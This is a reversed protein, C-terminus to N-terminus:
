KKNAKAKQKLAASRNKSPMGTNPVTVRYRGIKNKILRKAKHAKRRALVDDLKNQLAHIDKYIKAEQETLDVEGPLDKDTMGAEFMRKRSINKVGQQHPYLITGDYAIQTASLFIMLNTLEDKKSKSSFITGILPLEGLFPVKTKTNTKSQSMLGGIAIAYGSKITVVSSTKKEAIKPYSVSTGSGSTFPVTGDQTSLSPALKLTIYEAQVKPTVDLQIGIPKEEFGSIEFQGQDSNYSYNPIPYKTIVSMSAPVNNMTIITPNSLTKGIDDTKSFNFTSNLTKVFLSHGKLAKSHNISWTAQGHTDSTSNSTVNGAATATTTSSSADSAGSQDLYASLSAPWQIGFDDSFNNHAEVFKAEIMVQTEPKDLQQIITEVQQLNKSRGTWILMNTRENFTVREKNEKDVFEALETVLTKADAFKLLFTKTQLPEQLMTEASGIQVIGKNEVYSCGLPALVAELLAQWTVDKLRITVKGTLSTPIIINLDYLESIYRLVQKIDEDIFDVSVRSANGTRMDPVEKDDDFTVVINGSSFIQEKDYQETNQENNSTAKVEKLEDFSPLNFISDKASQLFSQLGCTLMLLLTTKLKM